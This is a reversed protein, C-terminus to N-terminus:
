ASAEPLAEAQVVALPRTRILAVVSVLLTLLGLIAYM